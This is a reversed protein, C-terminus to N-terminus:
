RLHAACLRHDGQAGAEALTKIWTDHGSSKTVMRGPFKILAIRGAASATDGLNEVFALKATLGADGIAKPYWLPFADLVDGYLKVSCENISFQRLTWPLRATLFGAAEMEAAIWNSTQRDSPSATRHHGMEAYNVVERYLSEGSVDTSYKM